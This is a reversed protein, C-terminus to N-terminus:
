SNCVAQLAKISARAREIHEAAASVAESIAAVSTTQEMTATEDSAARMNARLSDISEELINIHEILAVPLEGTTSTSEADANDIAARVRSEADALQSKLASEQRELQKVRAELQGAKMIAAEYRQMDAM